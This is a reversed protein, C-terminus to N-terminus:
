FNERHVVLKQDYGGCQFLFGCLVAMMEKDVEEFDQLIDDISPHSLLQQLQQAYETSKSSSVRDIFYPRRQITEGRGWQQIGFTNTMMQAICIMSNGDYIIMSIDNNRGHLELSFLSM